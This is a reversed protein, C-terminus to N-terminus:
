KDTGIQQHVNEQLTEIAHVRCFEEILALMQAIRPGRPRYIRYTKHAEAIVLGVQTLVALNQSVAPQAIGLEAALANVTYPQRCLLQIIQLRIPHSLAAFIRCIVEVSNPTSSAQLTASKPKRNTTNM